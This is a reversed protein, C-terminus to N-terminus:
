PILITNGKTSFKKDILNIGEAVWTYTEFPQASNRFYGNWGKEPESSNTEFVLNGWKNYVKFSILNKLHDIFPYLKNNTGKFPTFATPVNIKPLNVLEAKVEAVITCGSLNTLSIYYIGSKTIRSAQEISKQMKSDYWYAVKVYDSSGKIIDPNTLDVSQTLFVPAPHNIVLQPQANIQVTIDKTIECGNLNKITVLYTGSKDIQKPNNLIKGSTKESFTYSVDTTTGTYHMPDTLDIVMPACVPDPNKIVLNPLEYVKVEIPKVAVCGNTNIAKIYYIGSKAIANPHNIQLTLDKDSFYSLQINSDSGQTVNATTIDVTNPACVAPPNNIKLIPLKYIEVDVKKIVSCYQSQFHIYYSGSQTIKQPDTVVKTLQLDTFYTKTLGAPVKKQITSSTLDIVSNACATANALVDINTIDIFIVEIPKVASCGNISRAKIYYTGSKTIETPKPLSNKLEFDAFYEYSVDAAMNIRYKEATLDIIEDKCANIETVLNLEFFGKQIITSVTNTCGFGAYPILDLIVKDNEKLAPKITINNGEGYFVSRDENYWKYFEYGGPGMLMVDDSNDCKSNGQIISECKENVDLYAYGFHGSQTCDATTFEILLQKGQYNSLNISVPSWDKYIVGPVKSKKFGPLNSTAIYEFSACNIYSNTSLDLVKVNFRPQEAEIHNPDQFVVAYQYTLNFVPKDNPVTILYSIREAQKGTGDNGLKVSYNSGNPALVSFDGYPDKATKSNIISHRLLSPVGAIVNVKNVTKNGALSTEVLGTYTQWKTFTGTEFGINEPCNQSFANFSIAM